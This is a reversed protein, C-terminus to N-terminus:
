LDDDEPTLTKQEPTEVLRIAAPYTMNQGPYDVKKGALIEAITLIQIKPYDKNWAVSHYYGAGTAAIRMPETAEELTALAGMEAHEQEVTAILDKIDKISVGGSKVSVIITKLAMAAPEDTFFIRGDIGWDAGKQKKDAKRRGDIRDLVWWQFQYRGEKEKEALARAGDLDVPEGAVTFDISPGFTKHL